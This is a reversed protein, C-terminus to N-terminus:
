CVCEPRYSWGLTDGDLGHHARQTGNLKSLTVTQTVKERPDGCWLVDIMLQNLSVTRMQSSYQGGTVVIGTRISAFLTSDCQVTNCLLFQTNPMDDPEGLMIISDIGVLRTPLHVETVHCFDIELAKASSMHNRRSLLVLFRYQIPTIM